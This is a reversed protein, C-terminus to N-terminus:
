SKKAPKLVERISRSKSLFERLGSARDKWFTEASADAAIRELLGVAEDVLGAEELCRAMEFRQEASMDEEKLTRYHRLAGTFDAALFLAHALRGPFATRAVSTVGDTAPDAEPLEDLSALLVESKRTLQMAERRRREYAQHRRAREELQEVKVMMAALHQSELELTAPEVDDAASPTGLSDIDIPIGNRLEDLMGRLETEEDRLRALESNVDAVGTRDVSEIAYSVADALDDLTTEKANAVPEDGLIDALRAAIGTGIRGPGEDQQAAAAVCVSMAALVITAVRNM